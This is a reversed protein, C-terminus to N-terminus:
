NLISKKFNMKARNFAKDNMLKFVTVLVVCIRLKGKIKAFGQLVEEEFVPVMIVKQEIKEDVNCGYWAYFMGAIALFKGTKDPQEFGFRVNCSIHRPKIHKLIKIISKKAVKVGQKTSKRKLFIRTEHMKEYVKKCTSKVKKAKKEVLELLSTNKKFEGKSEVSDETNSIVIDSENKSKKIKDDIDKKISKKKFFKLRRIPLGLIRFKYFEKGNKYGVKVSVIRFLWNIKLYADVQEYKKALVKYRVPVVLVLVLLTLLIILAYLIILGIIKIVSIFELM